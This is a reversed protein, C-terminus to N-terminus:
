GGGSLQKSLLWQLYNRIIREPNFDEPSRLNGWACFFVYDPDAPKVEKLRRCLEEWCFGAIRWDIPSYESVYIAEDTGKYIPKLLFQFCDNNPVPAFHEPDLECLKRLVDIFPTNTPM